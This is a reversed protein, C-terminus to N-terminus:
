SVTTSTSNVTVEGGDLSASLAEPLTRVLEGKPGKVTVVRGEIKVEVGSPVPVPAQGVRSM